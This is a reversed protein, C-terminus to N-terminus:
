KVGYNKQNILTKQSITSKIVAKGFTQITKLKIEDLINLIEESYEAKKIKESLRKFTQDDLKLLKLKGISENKFKLFLKNTFEKEAKLCSIEIDDKNSKEELRKVKLSFTESHQKMSDKLVKITDSCSDLLKILNQDETKNKAEAIDNLINM